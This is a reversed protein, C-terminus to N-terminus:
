RKKRNETTMDNIFKKHELKKMIEKVRFEYAKLFKELNTYHPIKENDKVYRNMEIVALEDEDRNEFFLEYLYNKYKEKVSMFLIKIKEASVSDKIAEKPTQDIIAIIKSDAGVTMNETVVLKNSM